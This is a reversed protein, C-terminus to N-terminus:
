ASFFRDEEWSAPNAIIYESIRQYEQHNRIIRDHFRSQWGSELGLWNVHKTVASKYSRVIASITVSKPSIGAM